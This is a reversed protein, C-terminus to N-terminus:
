LSEDEVKVTTSGYKARIWPMSMGKSPSRGGAPRWYWMKQAERQLAAQKDRESKKANIEEALKEGLIVAIAARQSPTLDRRRLNASAVFTIPSGGEWGRFRPPVGADMCARYRNRGDLIKGEYTYIEENLGNTRIDTVFAVYEEGEMLPFINALPHFDM